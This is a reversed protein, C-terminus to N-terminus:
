RGLAELVADNEAPTGVTIRMCGRLVANRPFERVLIKAAAFRQKAQEIDRFRVLLFNADSPWCTDVMAIQGMSRALREREAITTAVTAGSHELGHASLAELALETVPTSLAYPPLIRGLLEIIREDGIAAGCRAGALARAKSLSRLVVLNDFEHLRNVMSPEGSFEVYAEDIVVLSRNRRGELVLEIQRAPVRNGTPNNPSCIFVLKTDRTCAELLRNGDLAFGQEARLPVAVTAAGQIHAYLGYLEFTPPSIVVNDVGARCFARMLLDIAESSGRTVLVNDAAVSHQVAIAAHLHEPRCAPYRNLGGGEDPAENANLRIAGAAHTAGVYPELARIEPRAIDLLSM